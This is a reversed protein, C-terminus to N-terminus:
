AGPGDLAFTFGHLTIVPRLGPPGAGFATVRRALEDGDIDPTITCLDVYDKRTYRRVGWDARIAPLPLASTALHPAFHGFLEVAATYSLQELGAQDTGAPVDFMNTGVIDGADIRPAMVHATVGYRRAGQYVAFSAPSWGPYAPPGPHFNYAGFGVAALLRAPVVVDTCFGIIRSAALTQPDLGDLDARTRVPIIRLDPNHRHLEVSLADQEAQHTAVLVITEM